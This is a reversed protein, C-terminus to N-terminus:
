PNLEREAGQAQASTLTFFFFAPARYSDRIKQPYLFFARDLAILLFSFIGCLPLVAM